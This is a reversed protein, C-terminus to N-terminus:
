ILWWVYDRTKESDIEHNSEPKRSIIVDEFEERGDHEKIMVVRM